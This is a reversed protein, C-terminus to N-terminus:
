RKGMFYMPISILCYIFLLIFNTLVFFAHPMTTILSLNILDLIVTYIVTVIILTVFYGTKIPKSLINGLVFFTLLVFGIIEFVMASEFNALTDIHLIAFFVYMVIAIYFCIIFSSFATILGKKVM